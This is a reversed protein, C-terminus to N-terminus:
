QAYLAFPYALLSLFSFQPLRCCRNSGAMYAVATSWASVMGVPYKKGAM